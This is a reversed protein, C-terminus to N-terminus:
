FVYGEVWWSSVNEGGGVRRVQEYLDLLKNDSLKLTQIAFCLSCYGLTRGSRRSHIFVVRLEGGLLM